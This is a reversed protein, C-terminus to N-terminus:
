RNCWIPYKIADHSQAGVCITRLAYMTMVSQGLPAIWGGVPHPRLNAAAAYVLHLISLGCTLGDHSIIPQALDPTKKRQPTPCRRSYKRLAYVAIVSQGSPAIWGGVPNPRPNAASANVLHPISLGCTLGDHSLIPQVLDPTKQTTLNPPPAFIKALCVGSHRIAGVPSDMRRHPKAPSKRPRM